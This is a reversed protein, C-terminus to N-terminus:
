IAILHQAYEHYRLLVPASRPVLGTVVRHFLASAETQMAYNRYELGARLLCAAHLHAYYAYEDANKLLTEIGDHPNGHEIHWDNLTSLVYGDMFSQSLIIDAHKRSMKEDIALYLHRLENHVDWSFQDPNDLIYQELAQIIPPVNGPYTSATPTMDELVAIQAPVFAAVSAGAM